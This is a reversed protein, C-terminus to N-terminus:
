VSVMEPNYTFPSSKPSRLTIRIGSLILEHICYSISTLVFGDRLLRLFVLSQPHTVM